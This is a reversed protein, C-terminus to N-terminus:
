GHTLEVLKVVTNWNRSTAVTGAFLGPRALAAALRSRGLGDPAYLYLARDGLRFEEPRYAAPDIGALREPGLPASLYTVHLQRGELAAADFPCDDVVARLYAADRVVCGVEFGFRGLLAAEIQGRLAEADREAAEFVANGSQLHTRVREYGLGALTERLEAMPVKGRGGVNIGRLLAAYSVTM